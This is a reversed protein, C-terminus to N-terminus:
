FGSERVVLAVLGRWGDAILSKPRAEIRALGLQMTQEVPAGDLRVLVRYLADRPILAREEGVTVIPGGRAAALIPHPLAQTRM